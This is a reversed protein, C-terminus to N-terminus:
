GLLLLTTIVATLASVIIEVLLSAGSECPSSEKCQDPILLIFKAEYELRRRRNRAVAANIVKVPCCLLEALRNQQEDSPMAEGLLWSEWTKRDIGLERIVNKESKGSARVLSSLCIERIM